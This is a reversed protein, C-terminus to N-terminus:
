RGQGSDVFLTVGGVLETGHVANINIAQRGMFGDPPEISANVMTTEGPALDLSEPDLEVIWGGPVPHSQPAHRVRAYTWDAQRETRPTFVAVTALEPYRRDSRKKDPKDRCDMQPPIEYGDVTLTLVRRITAENRVPFSFIAPSSAVGVNTNEQGLNNKPNADDLWNLQVKLCYHGAASPTRWTSRAQTPHGPAGKIPLVVTDSGIALPAPGIGFDHYYFDVNLGVAPAETSNNWITAVVEYDTDAELDSSSVPMGQRFLQIDPNNWTVALGQERLYQQSYIMPDARRYVDPTITGCEPHCRPDRGRRHDELRGRRRGIGILDRVLEILQRLWGFLFLYQLSRWLNLLLATVIRVLRTMGDVEKTEHEIVYAPIAANRRHSDKPSEDAPGHTGEIQM